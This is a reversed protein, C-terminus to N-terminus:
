QVQAHMKRLPNGSQQIETGPRAQRSDRNRKAARLNCYCQGLRLALLGRKELLGDAHQSDARRNMRPPSLCKTRDEITYNQPRNVFHRLGDRGRCPQDPRFAVQRQHRGRAPKVFEFLCCSRLEGPGTLPWQCASLGSRKGRRGDSM